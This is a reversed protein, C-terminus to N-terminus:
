SELATLIRDYDFTDCESPKKVETATKWVENECGKKMTKLYEVFKTIKNADDGGRNRMTKLQSIYLQEQDLNRAKQGQVAGGILKNGFLEMMGVGLAAGGVAGAVTGWTRASKKADLIRKKLVDRDTWEGCTITRGMEYYKGSIDGVNIRSDSSKLEVRVFCTNNDPEDIDEIMSAYNNINSYRSAWVFTNGVGINNSICANKEKERTNKQPVDDKAPEVDVDPQIGVRLSPKDVTVVNAMQNLQNVSATMRQAPLMQQATTRRGQGAPTAAFLPYTAMCVIVFSLIKKM